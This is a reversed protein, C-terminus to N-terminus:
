PHQGNILDAPSSSGKDARIAAILEDDTPAKSTDFFRDGSLQMYLDMGTSITGHIGAFGSSANCWWLNSFPTGAKLRKLGVQAPTLYSGYANGFPAACFDEHTSPTGIAKVVIHKRLDPVYKKEVIDLLMDAIRQKERSYAAYDKEKLEKLVAYEMYTAVEMIQGGPPTTGRDDTNLSPTSIFIWPKSFDGKAQDKWMQNMDWQDLHWTNFRGFGLAKLDLDKLGLYIMMGSPSYKYDLKKSYGSPFHQRGIIHSAKQPDMNCIYNDATFTKGDATKVSAVKGDQIDIHSVPTEYYIHCGEHSTIFKALRSVFYKFHKAPYYAGSNYGSFLGCYALISLDEPPAMMDGADAILVAQAEKSLGCEDFVQQTTKNLYRLLTPVRYSKTLFEWWKIKRDPIIRLEKRLKQLISTFRKVKEGQGPYAAEINTALRNFGNPILVAKGDPLVVRDYGDPDLLNFKLDDQLGIRKVFEYIRGGPACGWIYHVQACFHYDGMKFTHAMGGPSDHAELMCVKKGSNAMLSAFSLASMGTGIILYDYRPCKSYLDDQAAKQAATLSGTSYKKM